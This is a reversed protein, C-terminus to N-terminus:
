HLMQLLQFNRWKKIPKLFLDTGSPCKKVTEIIKDASSSESNDMQKEKPKFCRSQKERV